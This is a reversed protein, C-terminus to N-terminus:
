VKDNPTLRSLINLAIEKERELPWGLQSGSIDILMVLDMDGRKGSFMAPDPSLNLMFYGAGDGDRALALSFDTATAARKLRLVFDRNPYTAQTKLVVGRAFSSAPTQGPEVVGREELLIRIGGLTEVDIPHTPSHISALELGSQVLVNFQ